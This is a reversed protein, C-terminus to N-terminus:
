FRAPILFYPSLSLKSHKSPKGMKVRVEIKLHRDGFFIYNIGIIYVINHIFDLNVV